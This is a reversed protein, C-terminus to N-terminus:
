RQLDLSTGWAIEIQPKTYIILPLVYNEEDFDVKLGETGESEFEISRTERLLSFKALCYAWPIGAEIGSAECEFLYELEYLEPHKM